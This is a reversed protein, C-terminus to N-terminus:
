AKSFPKAGTFIKQAMGEGDKEATASSRVNIGKEAAIAKTGM